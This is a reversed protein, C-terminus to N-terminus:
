TAEEVPQNEKRLAGPQGGPFLRELFMGLAVGAALLALGSGCLVLRTRMVGGTQSGFLHNAPWGRELRHTIGNFPHTRGGHRGARRGGTEKSRKKGSSFLSAIIQTQGVRAISNPRVFQRIPLMGACRSITVKLCTSEQFQRGRQWWTSTSPNKPPISSTPLKMRTSPSCSRPPPSSSREKSSRLLLKKGM